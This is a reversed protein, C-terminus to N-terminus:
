LTGRSAAGTRFSRARAMDTSWFGVIRSEGFMLRLKRADETGFDASTSRDGRRLIRRMEVSLDIVVVGLRRVRFVDAAEDSVGLTTVRLAELCTDTSRPMVGSVGDRRTVRAKDRSGVVGIADGFRM